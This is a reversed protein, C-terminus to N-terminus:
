KVFMEITLPDVNVSSGKDSPTLSVGSIQMKPVNQEIDYMFQLLRKLKVPTKLTVTIGVKKGSSVVPGAPTGEPSVPATAPAPTATNDGSAPQSGDVYAFSAVSIKNKSATKSVIDVIQFEPFENTSKLLNAKTLISQQQALEQQITQLAELNGDSASADVRQKSVDVTYNKLWDKSALFGASGVVIILLMGITLIIRFRTATLAMDRKKSM